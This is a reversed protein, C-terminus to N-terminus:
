DRLFLFEGKVLWSVSFAWVAISELWFVPHVQDRVHNTFVLNTVVVLALCAVIAIGCVRCVANRQRKQATPILGPETRTFQFLSFYAM